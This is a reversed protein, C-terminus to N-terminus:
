NAGKMSTFDWSLKLMFYRSITNYSDQRITSGSQYRRFGVNQNLLDNVYFDVVLSENKLFKRSVGPKIIMRDFKENFAETPAEYSYTIESYIKFKMPLYYTLSNYSEFTFGESNSAPQLTTKITRFGPSFSMYFDLNKTTNKSLGLRLGYNFSENENLSGNIYNASTSYNGNLGVNGEIKYKKILNFHTGGWFNASNAVKETMNEFFRTTVGATDINLNQQISNHRQVFSGGFYVYSNKLLNYSNYNLNYSDTQSPKLNENGELINLPDTNQRLPQIQSLGPMINNRTYNFRLAKNKSIKYSLMASPNYTTFSRDLETDTNNNRQLMDDNRVVNNINFDFKESKYNLSLNAANRVTTYDFDNSFEEDLETYAGGVNNFSNNVSNNTGNNYEYGIAANLKKTIPETYTASARLNNIKSTIDKFQDINSTSDIAGDVYFDTASKLFTEGDRDSINGALRLTISRGAKLFKRTFLGDYTFESNHSKTNQVRSNTNLTDLLANTSFADYTEDSRILGKSGSVRVTLTSLSDLKWDYKANVRHRQNDTYNTSSTNSNLVGGELNNQSISGSIGDNEIRGFKYSLNLKHKNENWNDLYTLGTSIARPMGRGDWYSFEDGTYSFNTSGDDNVQVDMDSTGFKESEEWDLNVTGDNAGLVYGGIKQSGNFKNFALKGLYYGDTGGAAEAKGFVGKKADEKLKVNITQIREGDDVGTRETQESKKEYVQVKDVMDSRINRTVLTPDDGFFEEGDVLVKEVTKGQATIKGSADVTIGPLVKLLDEVKANKEVTFSSADYETTDGKIVIPIKGTVLVEEILNAISSLEINGLDESQSSKQFEKYSEGYKPYSVILLHDISDIKTLSFKGNEDARTFDVLISDKAQLLMITANRLAAKDAEDVIKGTLKSQAYGQFTVASFLLMLFVSTLKNM